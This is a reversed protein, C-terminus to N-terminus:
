GTRRSPRKLSSVTKHRVEIGISGLDVPKGSWRTPVDKARWPQNQNIWTLVRNVASERSLHLTSEIQTIRESGMPGGLGTHNNIVAEFIIM